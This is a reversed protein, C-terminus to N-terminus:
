HPFLHSPLELHGQLIKRVTRVVAARQLVV